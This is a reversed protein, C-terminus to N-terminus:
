LWWKKLHAFITSKKNNVDKADITKLKKFPYVNNAPLNVGKASIAKQKELNCVDAAGAAGM